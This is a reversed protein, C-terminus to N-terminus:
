QESITTCTDSTTQYQAMSEIHSSNSSPKCWICWVDAYSLFASSATSNGLSVCGWGIAFLLVLVRCSLIATCLPNGATLLSWVRVHQFYRDGKRPLASKWYMRSYKCLWTAGPQRFVTRTLSEKMCSSTCLIYLSVSTVDMICQPGYFLLWSIKKQLKTLFWRIKICNGSNSKCIFSVHLHISWGGWRILTAVSGQSVRYVSFAHWCL